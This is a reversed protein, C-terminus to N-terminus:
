LILKIRDCVSRSNCPSHADELSKAADFHNSSSLALSVLSAGQYFDLGTLLDKRVRFHGAQRSNTHFMQVIECTATM